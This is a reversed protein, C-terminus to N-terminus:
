APWISRLSFSRPNVVRSSPLLLTLIPSTSDRSYFRQTHCFRGDLFLEAVSNDFFLHLSAKDGLPSPPRACGEPLSIRTHTNQDESEWKIAFLPGLSDALLFPPAINAGHTLHLTATFEQIQDGPSSRRLQQLAPLPSIRLDGDQITLVRPLSLMGSWGAANFEAEPRTEALWGWLIRNGHQDLQTKPAYFSRGLDLLGTATAHFTLTKPDLDGVQWFTKRKTSYILVHRDGLAFFDPCEWMEGTDVPGKPTDVPTSKTPNPTTPPSSLTTSQALPHLYEWQTLDSAGNGLDAARYLLAMGGVGRQGSGVVLYQRGGHHFPTPDRFGTVKLGAPPSPIVPQLRKTWTNLSPDAATALLQTERFNHTGDSLTAQDHPVSQVGTYIIAPTGHQLISSGTFVGESDPGGPTPAIAVPLRKWHVMDPSVAHAWHMDGWHAANPNYQHFMHYQRRHFIPACPDNMWNRAPLYHFAPRLPDHILSDQPLPQGQAESSSAEAVSFRPRLATAAATGALTSLVSRRTLRM